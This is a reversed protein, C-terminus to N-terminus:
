LRFSLDPDYMSAEEKAEAPTLPADAYFEEFGHPRDWGQPKKPKLQQPPQPRKVESVNKKVKTKPETAREKDYEEDSVEDLITPLTLPTKRRIRKNDVVELFISKRLSQVVQSMPKYGRMKRFGCIRSISVPLNQSGGCQELLHKDNPLNEDSFYYEVQRRIEEGKPHESPPPPPQWVRPLVQSPDVAPTQAEDPASADAM